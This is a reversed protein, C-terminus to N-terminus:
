MNYLYSQKHKKWNKLLYKAQHRCTNMLENRKNICSRKEELITLAEIMCLKCTNRSQNTKNVQKIIKWIIKYEQKKEKLSHVEKSLETSNKYKQHNMHSADSKFTTRHVAIRKKIENETLGIYVKSNNNTEIRAEYIVNEKRCEDNKLPCQLTKRCNCKKANSKEEKNNQLIKFNHCKIIIEINTMCSYSIKVNNKNIFKKMKSKEGFHKNIINIFSRGINSKISKDYPPNFWLIKRKRNKNKGTKTATKSKDVYKIEKNYGSKRLAENYVDKSMDFLEKNSSNKNTRKEIM